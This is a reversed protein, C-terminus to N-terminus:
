KDNEKLHRQNETKNNLEKESSLDKVVEKVVLDALRHLADLQEQTLNGLERILRSSAFIFQHFLSRVFEKM